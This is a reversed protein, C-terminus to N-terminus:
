RSCPTDASSAARMTASMAAAASAVMPAMQRESRTINEFIVRQPGSNCPHELSTARIMVDDAKRLMPESSITNAAQGTQGPPM